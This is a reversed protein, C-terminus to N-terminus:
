IKWNCMEVVTQQLLAVFVQVEGLTLSNKLVDKSQGEQVTLNVWYATSGSGNAKNLSFIKQNDSKFDGNPKHFFSLKDQGTRGRLFALLDGVEMLNLAFVKRDDWKYKKDGISPAVSVLLGPKTKRGNKERGPMLEFTMMSNKKFVTWQRREFQEKNESM